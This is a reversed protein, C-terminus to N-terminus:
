PCYYHFISFTPLTPLSFAPFSFTPVLAQSTPFFWMPLYSIQYTPPDAPLYTTTKSLYPTTKSLFLSFTSLTPLTPQMFNRNGFIRLVRHPPEIPYLISTPFAFFRALPTSPTFSRLPFHSPGPPPPVVPYIVRRHMICPACVLIKMIVIM